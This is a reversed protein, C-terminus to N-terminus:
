QVDVTFSFDTNIDTNEWIEFAQSHDFIFIVNKFAYFVAVFFLLGMRERLRHKLGFVRVDIM